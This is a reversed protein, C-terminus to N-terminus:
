NLFPNYRLENEITTLPGHGPAVVTQPPLSGLVRRLQATLQRHCFYGGGVSGAFLLDGSVLLSAGHRTLPSSVVYCNHAESHGPTNLATVEIPGIEHREGEGMPRGCRVTTGSPCFAAHVGFREVVDCLGGVHETEAHTLFIADVHRIARPWVADLAEIGPGTDFLVAHSSGCEGVLYANATGIGHKMRLPYVCFPLAGAAPLPYRGCGLASFGVENLQLVEALRRLEAPSFDARYDIVDRILSPNIGTAAALTDATFGARRMAKEVVDGVEDELPIVENAM